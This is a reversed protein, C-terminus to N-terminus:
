CLLTTMNKFNEMCRDLQLVSSFGCSSCKECLYAFTIQIEPWSYGASRDFPNDRMTTLPFSSTVFITQYFFLLFM